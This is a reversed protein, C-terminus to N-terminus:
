GDTDPTETAGDGGEQAQLWTQIEWGLEVLLEAYEQRRLPAEATNLQKWRDIAVYCERYDECLAWFSRSERFVREILEDRGTFTTRVLTLTDTDPNM